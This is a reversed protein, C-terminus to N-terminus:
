EYFITANENKICAGDVCGLSCTFKQNLYRDGRCYYEILTKQDYAKNEPDKDRVCIDYVKRGRAMVYGKEFVKYGGDSETCSTMRLEGQTDEIEQKEEVIIEQEEQQTQNIPTDNITTNNTQNEQVQQEQIPACAALVTILAVLCFIVVRM